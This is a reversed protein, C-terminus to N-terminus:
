AWVMLIKIKKGVTTGLDSVWLPRYQLFFGSDFKERKPGKLM